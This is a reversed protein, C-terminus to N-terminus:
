RHRETGKREGVVLFLRRWKGGEEEEEKGHVDFCNTLVISLNCLFTLM